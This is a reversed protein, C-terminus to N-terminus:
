EIKLILPGADKPAVPDPLDNAPSDAEGRRTRGLFDFDLIGNDDADRTAMFYTMLGLVHYTYSARNAPFGAPLSEYVLGRTNGSPGVSMLVAANYGGPPPFAMTALPGPPDSPRPRPDTPNIGYLFEAYRQAQQKNVPVYLFPRQANDQQAVEAPLNAGTYIETSFTYRSAGSKQGIPSFELFSIDGDRDTDGSDAFNDYLDFNQHFKLRAMYPLYVFAAAGFQTVLQEPPVSVGLENVYGYAPPFSTHDTLYEILATHIQKMTSTAKTIKARELARPLVAAVMSALIGIIAIVTLLEILTFGHRTAHVRRCRMPQYM